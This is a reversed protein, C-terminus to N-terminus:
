FYIFPHKVGLWGTRNYWPSLMATFPNIFNNNSTTNTNDIRPRNWVPSYLGWDKEACAISRVVTYYQHHVTRSNFDSEANVDFCDAKNPLQECRTHRILTHIHTHKSWSKSNSLYTHEENHPRVVAKIERQSSYFYIPITVTIERWWRAEAM